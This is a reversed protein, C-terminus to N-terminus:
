LKSNYTEINKVIFDIYSLSIKPHVPLCILEKEYKEANLCEKRIGFMKECNYYHKFRVEIGKDLLYKNLDNKDKVLIPFDLFNQYNEDTIKILNFKRDKIKSLQTLYYKHKTKRLNFLKQRRYKDKLQYYTMHTSLNSIKTFYYNPFKIKISKLSPYFLYLVSEINHKHAYKIIHFFFNKYLFDYSMLKLIFYITVQKILPLYFFNSLKTEEKNYFKVFNINNTSAAGGYFSSINKMINFSYITYDGLNGSYFKNKKIKTYNDFYVANDEILTIKKKNVIKKLTESDKYNNFMNTLVIAITKKSIKKKLQNIDIFGTQYNLDCFKVKLNLNVAINVMEPLNYSCFIIENKNNKSKLFKLIFFFAVRCQSFLATFKKNSQKSIFNKIFKDNKKIKNSTLLGFFLSSIKLYIWIRFM